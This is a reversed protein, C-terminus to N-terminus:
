WCKSSFSRQYMSRQFVVQWRFLDLYEMQTWGWWNWPILLHLRPCPPKWLASWYNCLSQWLNELGKLHRESPREKDMRLHYWRSKMPLTWSFQLHHDFLHRRTWLLSHLVAASSCFFLLFLKSTLKQARPRNAGGAIPSWVLINCVRDRYIQM